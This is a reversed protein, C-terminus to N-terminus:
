KKATGSARRYVTEFGPQDGWSVTGSTSTSPGRVQSEQISRPPSASHDAVQVDSVTKSQLKPKPRKSADRADIRSIATKDLGVQENKLVVILKEETLDDYKAEVPQSAGRKWIKLDSGSKLEKVKAWPDDAGMAALAAFLVLLIRKM